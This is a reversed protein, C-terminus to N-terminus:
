NGSAVQRLLESIESKSYGEDEYHRTIEYLSRDLMRCDGTRGIDRGAGFDSCISKGRKEVCSHNMCFTYDNVLSTSALDIYGADRKPVAGSAAQAFTKKTAATPVMKTKVRGDHSTIRKEHTVFSDAVDAIHRVAKREQKMTGIFGKILNELDNMKRELHKAEASSVSDSPHISTDKSGAQSRSERWKRSRELQKESRQRKPREVRVEQGVVPSVKAGSALIRVEHSMSDSPRVYHELHMMTPTASIDTAWVGRVRLFVKGTASGNVNRYGYQFAPLASNTADPALGTDVSPVAYAATKRPVRMRIRPSDVSGDPAIDSVAPYPTVNRFLNGPTVPASDGAALTQILAEDYQMVRGSLEYAAPATSGGHTGGWIEISRVKFKIPQDDMLGVTSKIGTRLTEIGVTAWVGQASPFDATGEITYRYWPNTRIPRPHKAPSARKAAKGKMRRRTRGNGDRRTPKANPVIRPRPM